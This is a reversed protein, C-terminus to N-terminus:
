IRMMRRGATIMWGPALPKGGPLYYNSGELNYSKPPHWRADSGLTWGEKKLSEQYNAQTPHLNSKFFLPVKSDAPRNM